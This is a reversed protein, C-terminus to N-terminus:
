IIRQKDDNIGSKMKLAKEMTVEDMSDMFDIELPNTPKM